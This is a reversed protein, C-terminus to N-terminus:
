EEEQKKRQIEELMRQREERAKLLKEGATEWKYDKIGEGELFFTGYADGFNKADQSTYSTGWKADAEVFEDPTSDMEDNVEEYFDADNYKEYYASKSAEQIRALNSSSTIPETPDAVSSYTLAIKRVTGVSKIAEWAENLNEYLMENSALESLMKKTRLLRLRGSKEHKAYVSFESGLASYVINKIKQYELNNYGFAKFVENARRNIVLVLDDINKM